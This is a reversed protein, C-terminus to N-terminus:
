FEKAIDPFCYCIPVIMHKKSRDSLKKFDEKFDNLTLNKPGYISTAKAGLMVDIIDKPDTFLVTALTYLNAFIPALSNAENLTDFKVLQQVKRMSAIPQLSKELIYNRTMGQCQNNVELVGLCMSSIDKTADKPVFFVRPRSSSIFSATKKLFDSVEPNNKYNIKNEIIQLIKNSIIIKVSYTAAARAVERKKEIYLGVPTGEEAPDTLGVTASTVGYISDTLSEHARPKVISISVRDDKTNRSIANLEEKFTYPFLNVKATRKVQYRIPKLVNMQRDELGMETEIENTSLQFEDIYLFLGFCDTVYEEDKNPDKNYADSRSKIRESVQRGSDKTSVGFRQLIQFIRLREIDSSGCMPLILDLESLIGIKEDKEKLAAELQEIVKTNKELAARLESLLSDKLLNTLEEVMKPDRWAELISRRMEDGSKIDRTRNGGGM